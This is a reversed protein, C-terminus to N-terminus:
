CKYNQKIELDIIEIADLPDSFINATNGSDTPTGWYPRDIKTHPPMRQNGDWFFLGSEKLKKLFSEYLPYLVPKIVDRYRDTVIADKKTFQIIALNLKFTIIGKANNEPIDMRLAILPYKQHKLVPDKQQNILRQNIEVKHGYMYYPQGTPLGDADKARMSNVVKEIDDVIYNM